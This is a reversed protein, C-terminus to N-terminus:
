YPTIHSHSCNDCRGLRNQTVSLIERCYRSNNYSKTRRDNVKQRIKKFDIDREEWMGFSRSFPVEANTKEPTAVTTKVEADIGWSQLFIVISNLKQRDIRNKLILETM